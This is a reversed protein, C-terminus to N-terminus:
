VLVSADQPGGIIGGCLVVDGDYFVASQGPAVGVLGEARRCVGGGAGDPEFVAGAAPEGTSRIKVSCRFPGAAPAASTWRVDVVRFERCLLEDRRGVVVRNGKSDIRM